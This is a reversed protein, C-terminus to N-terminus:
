SGVREFQIRNKLLRFVGTIVNCKDRVLVTRVKHEAMLVMAYLVGDGSSCSPWRAAKEVVVEHTMNSVRAEARASKLEYV